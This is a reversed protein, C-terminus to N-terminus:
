NQNETSTTTEITSSVNNELSSSAVSTNILSALSNGIADRVLQNKQAEVLAKELETGGPPPVAAQAEHWSSELNNLFNQSEKRISGFDYVMARASLGWIALIAIMLVSVGTTM